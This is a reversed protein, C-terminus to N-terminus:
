AVSPPNSQQGVPTFGRDITLRCEHRKRSRLILAVLAGVTAFAASTPEPVTSASAMVQVVSAGFLMFGGKNTTHTYLYSFYGLSDTPSISESFNYNALKPSYASFILRNSTIDGLILKDSQSIIQLNGAFSDSGLGDVTVVATVPTLKYSSGV